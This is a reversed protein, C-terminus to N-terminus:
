RLLVTGEFLDGARGELRLVLAETDGEGIADGFVAPKGGEVGVVTRPKDGSAAAPLFIEGAGSVALKAPPESRLWSRRNGSEASCLGSRSRLTEPKNM